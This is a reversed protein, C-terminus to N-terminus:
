EIIFEVSFEKKDTCGNNICVDKVIRYEGKGLKGYINSWDQKLELKNNKDVSYAIMNFYADGIKEVEEWSGNNKVDIRFSSGYDYKKENVDIIIVTASTKTLAGKKITMSVGEVENSVNKIDMACNFKAGKSKILPASHEMCNYVDFFIAKYVTNVSDGNDVKIGFLPKSFTFVFILDIILLVLITASIITIWKLYKKM